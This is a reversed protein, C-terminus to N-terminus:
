EAEFLKVSGVAACEDAAMNGAFVSVSIKETGAPARAIVRLKKSKYDGCPSQARKVLLPKGAGDFFVARLYLVNGANLKANFVAEAAYAANARAVASQTIGVFNQSSLRLGKIDCNGDLEFKVTNKCDDPRFVRWHNVGESFDPNRLINKSSLLEKAIECFDNGFMKEVFDSASRNDTRLLIEAASESPSVFNAADIKLYDLKPFKTQELYREVALHKRVNAIRIAAITDIIESPIPPESDAYLFLKKKLYYANVYAKTIDFLLRVERIRERVSPPLDATNEARSLSEEMANLDSQSFLESQSERKYLKLWVPTDARGRWVRSAVSFFAKMHPAAAKYYLCFFESEVADADLATNKLLKSLVWLKPADYGWRPYSECTYLTAGLTNACKAADAIFATINRPVFYPAGYNYDYLGFLGVGSDAWKELLAMDTNRAASNYNNARDACLYVLTNKRLKFDPPNESYLYALEGIYKRPYDAETRAALENVFGWILNGYDRYGRPTYRRRLRLTKPTDDFNNSDAYTSPFALAGADFFARAKAEVFDAVEPNLFDIQPSPTEFTLRKGNRFALWDARGNEVFGKVFLPLQHNALALIRNGGNLISYLGSVGLNRGLYSLRITESGNPIYKRGDYEWGLPPLALLQIGLFREAFAGVAATANAPFDYFIEGRNGHVSIKIKGAERLDARPVLRMNVTFDGGLYNKAFGSQLIAEKLANAAHKEPTSANKPYLVSIKAGIEPRSYAQPTGAYLAFAAVFFVVRTLFRGM